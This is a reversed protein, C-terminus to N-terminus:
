IKLTNINVIKEKIIDSAVLTKCDLQKVVFRLQHIKNRLALKFVPLCKKHYLAILPTTRSDAIYQVIDYNNDREKLLPAFVDIDVKPTDCSIILNYDTKSKKLGTYVGAVPGFNSVNDPIRKVNFQDYDSNNSVIIIEDVFPSLNNIIHQTFTIDNLKIFGKDTGMRSSKGGALIIGTINKEM